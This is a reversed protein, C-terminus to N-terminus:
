KKINKQRSNIKKLFFHFFVEKREAKERKRERERKKETCVTQTKKQKIWKVLTFQSPYSEDVPEDIVFEIDWPLLHRLSDDLTERLM